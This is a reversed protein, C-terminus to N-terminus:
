KYAVGLQPLFSSENRYVLAQLRVEPHAREEYLRAASQTSFRVM